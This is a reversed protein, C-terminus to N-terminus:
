IGQKKFRIILFGIITLIIGLLLIIFNYGTLFIACINGAIHMILPKAFDKDKLYFYSSIIGVIFGYVISVINIHIVGFIISSLLLIVFKNSNFGELREILDYKFLLEEFIPGIVGSCVITIIIPFNVTVDFEKGLIFIVMNYLINIGIGILIYPFYNLKFIDFNITNGKRRISIIKWIIYIIEFSVLLISGWLVSKDVGISFVCAFLMVYQMFMVIFIEKVSLLLNWLYKM